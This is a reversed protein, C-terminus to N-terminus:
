CAVTRRYLEMLDHSSLASQKSLAEERVAMLLEGTKERPLVVGAEAMVKVAHPNLGHTEIGASYVDFIDGKLHRTWGEAM